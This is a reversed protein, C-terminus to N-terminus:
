LRAARPRHARARLRLICAGLPTGGVEGVTDV